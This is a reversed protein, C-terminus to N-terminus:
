FFVFLCMLVFYNLLCMECFEGSSEVQLRIIIQFNRWWDKTETQCKWVGTSTINQSTEQPSFSRKDRQKSLCWGQLALATDDWYWARSQKCESDSGRSSSLHHIHHTLMFSLVECYYFLWDSIILFLLFHSSHNCDFYWWNSSPKPYSCTDAHRHKPTCTHAPSISFWFDFTYM